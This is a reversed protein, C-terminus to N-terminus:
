LGKCHSGDCSRLVVEKESNIPIIVYNFGSYSLQKGDDFKIILKDEFKVINREYVFWTAIKNKNDFISVEFTRPNESSNNINLEDNFYDQILITTLGSVSFILCGCLSAALLHDLIKNKIKNINASM